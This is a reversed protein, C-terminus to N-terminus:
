GVRDNVMGVAQMLAYCTTPGVFRFGHRKLERALARSEASQTPIDSVRRPREHEAPVFSWVLVPLGPSLRGAAEGLLAYAASDQALEQFDPHERLEVTARANAWLAEHKLRNRILRPDAMAAERHEPPMASIRTADFLHFVERFAPRKRLITSWSLGSQFGELTIRELLGHETVVPRGWESDYYDRELDSRWAWPPRCVGDADCLEGTDSEVLDAVTRKATGTGKARATGEVEAEKVRARETVETSM